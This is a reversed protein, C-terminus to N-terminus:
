LHAQSHNISKFLNQYAESLINEEKEWSLLRKAKQTNSKLESYLTINTKLIQITAAITNPDHPDCCLGIKYKNVVREIEPFNSGIIPTEAQISEFLKNPLSYYYSQCSNQILVSGIDVAGVFQWLDTVSVADIFLIKDAFGIKEALDRIEEKYSEAGYGLIIVALHDIKASALILNEIGRNRMIGGHYMVLFTSIPVRLLDCIEIRKNLCIEPDMEWLNAMNRVVIPRLQLRHIKQVEDAISDNVMMSFAVRRMLFGEIIQIVWSYFRSRKRDLNRGIEFEHSDYVLKPRKDGVTMASILWGIILATLDHCSIINPKLKRIKKILVIWLHLIKFIRVVKPQDYSLIPRLVQSRTYGETALELSEENGPFVAIVDCGLKMLVSIERKDRNEHSIDSLLLKVIKLAM